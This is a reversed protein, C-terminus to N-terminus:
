YAALLKSDCLSFRSLVVHLPDRRECTDRAEVFQKNPPQAGDSEPM